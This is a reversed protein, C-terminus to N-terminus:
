TMQAMSLRWRHQWLVRQSVQQWQLMSGKDVEGARSAAVQADNKNTGHSSTAMTSATTAVQLPAEVAQAAVADDAKSAAVAADNKNIGDPSAAM